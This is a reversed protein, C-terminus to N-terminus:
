NGREAFVAQSIINTSANTLYTSKLNTLTTTKSPNPATPNGPSTTLVHDGAILIDLIQELLAKLETGLVVPNAANESGLQTKNQSLVIKEGKANYICVDGEKLFGMSARSKDRAGIIIRAGPHEGVQASVGITGAPARSVYGYPHVVPRKDMRPAGPVAQEIEQDELGGDQLICSLIVNVAM